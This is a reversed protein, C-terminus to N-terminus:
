DLHTRIQKGTLIEYNETSQDLYYSSNGLALGFSNYIEMMEELDKGTVFKDIEEAAQVLTKHMELLDEDMPAKKERIKRCQDVLAFAAIDYPESTSFLNPEERIRELLIDLEAIEGQLSSNSNEYWILYDNRESIKESSEEVIKSATKEEVIGNNFIVLFVIGMTTVVGLVFSLILKTKM